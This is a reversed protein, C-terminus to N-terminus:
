EKEIEFHEIQELLWSKDGKKSYSAFYEKNEEILNWVMEEQVVIKFAEVKKQNNGDYARIWYEEYDNSHGKEIVILFSTTSTYTGVCSILVLSVLIILSIPIRKVSCTLNKM